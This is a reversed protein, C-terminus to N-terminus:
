VKVAAGGRRIVFRYVGRSESAELLEHRGSRCFADFDPVAGPDTALVELIGGAALDKIAKTAKLIPWPCTLGTTDLVKDAIFDDAM